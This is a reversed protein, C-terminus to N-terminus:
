FVGPPVVTRDPHAASPIVRCNKGPRTFFIFRIILKDRIQDVVRPSESTLTPVTVIFARPVTLEPWLDLNKVM